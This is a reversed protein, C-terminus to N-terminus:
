LAGLPHQLKTRVGHASIEGLPMHFISPVACEFYRGHLPICTAVATGILGCVVLPLFAAFASVADTWDFVFVVFFFIKCLSCTAASQKM